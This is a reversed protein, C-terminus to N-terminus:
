VVKMLRAENTWLIYTEVPKDPYIKGILQAYTALQNKYVQPTEKVNQAAPRNTKFDVIIIKHPLIVLRDIQASIIKEGVRGMIPVEARSNPGFIQAFNEEQLLSIVERCIQQRQSLSLDAANKNLYDHIIRETNSGDYTLFQLLRHIITGRRYFHGSEALPSSSDTDEEQPKSPTYPKLFAGESPAPRNLWDGLPEERHVPKEIATPRAAFVEPVETYFIDEDAIGTQALCRHSLEYWSQQSIEATNAYGCIFLRDEARTLAVYLLRRYEEEAKQHNKLKIQTCKEDYFASGLPCFAMDTDWLIEQERKASKVHVTDPLFVIPAQLGKSGHVTMLRVADIDKQETERKIEIEHASIWSIFGQLSPINQREYAITLNIFEDLSDEIEMGMRQTFKLRGNMKTLVHNYLEYPRVFDLMDFLEQLSRYIHAYSAFDGLRSWLPAQGRKYCLKILDDDDLGFLPSKLVEALSLDDNPLLLFKGLSILDQVAIQESLKLRDAGSISVNQQKCARIFEDVFGTRRQVLVMFDRFHLPKSTTKSESVMQRIKGAIKQALKTKVSIERNMEVPPQWYDAHPDKVKKDAVLLPWIEVRGYEGARFPLHEIKEGATVVGASAEPTNFLANVTNLVAESSRFSVNLDIKKFHTGAQAAFYKEMVDFKEPDAGQFSYISQKRDGVVFVTRPHNTTDDTFFEGSLSKIIEWQDPSTDQAEDLLIHDIGGDLKFLVWNAVASDALLKKTLIILDAYDLKAQQKKYTNYAEILERAITLVSLTAQYLAIKKLKQECAYVRQAEQFLRDGLCPDAASANKSALQKAIEGEATLFISKYIEYDQPAFNNQLVKSLKETKILDKKGGKNWAQLNLLAAEKDIRSMFDATVSLATDNLHIGLLSSLKRCLNDFTQYHDFLQSIKVRNDVISKMVKPFTFESLNQTLYALASRFAESHPVHTRSLMDKQIQALVQASSQDDLVEFYPSVGAELPFRKLIDQCFSHITQVKIGGPTDLLLAFLTRATEQYTRLDKAPFDKDAFLSKIDEALKDEDEVAWRSLRAAIRTSMEVAAAKTYTLCLLKAPSIKNLLLRLVRDSLVKTKGTGASAEVWVSVYPDAAANQQKSAATGRNIRLKEIMENTM